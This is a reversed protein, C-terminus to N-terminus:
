STCIRVAAWGRVSGQLSRCIAGGCIAGRRQCHLTGPGGLVGQGVRSGGCACSCHWRRDGSCACCGGSGGGHFPGGHAQAGSQGAGARQGGGGQQQAQEAAAGAPRRQQRDRGSGSACRRCGRCGAQGDCGRWWRAACRGGRQVLQEVAGPFVVHPAVRFPGGIGAVVAVAVLQFVGGGLGLGGTKGGQVALQSRGAGDVPLRQIGGVASRQVQEDVADLVVQRELRQAAKAPQAQAGDAAEVGAQGPQQLGAGDVGRGLGRLHQGPQRGIRQPDVLFQQAQAVAHVQAPHRRPRHQVPDQARQVQLQRRGVWGTCRQVLAREVLGEGPQAAGNRRGLLRGQLGPCARQNRVLHQRGHAAQAVKHGAGIGCRGRRGAVQAAVRAARRHIGRQHAAVGGGRQCRLLHMGDAQALHCAQTALDGLHHAVHGPGAIEVAKHAVEVGVGLVEVGAGFGQQGAVAVDALPQVSFQRPQKGLQWPRGPAHAGHRRVHPGVGGLRVVARAQVAAAGAPEVGVRQAVLGPRDPGHLGQHRMLGHGAVVQLHGAGALQAGQWAKPAVRAVHGIAFAPRQIGLGQAKGHAQVLVGGAAEAVQLPLHQARRPQHDVGAQVVQAPGPLLGDVVHQRLGALVATEDFALDVAVGAPRALGQAVHMPWSFIMSSRSRARAASPGRKSM